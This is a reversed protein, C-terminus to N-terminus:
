NARTNLTITGSVYDQTNFSETAVTGVSVNNSDTLRVATSGNINLEYNRTSGTWWKKELRLGVSFKGNESVQRTYTGPILKEGNFLISVYESNSNIIELKAPVTPGIDEEAGKAKIYAPVGDSAIVPLWAGDNAYDFLTNLVM